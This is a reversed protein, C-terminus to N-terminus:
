SFNEFRGGSGSGRKLRAIRQEYTEQKKDDSSGPVKPVARLHSRVTSITIYRDTDMSHNNQDVPKTVKENQDPGLDEFEPYHYVEIEDISHPNLDRFFKFKRTKMLEYHLAIGRNIDNDAPTAPVGHRNLEEIYGPQSPDCFFNLIGFTQKKQKCVLAIDTITLGTKYFESVSYHRGEPTIARVKLCFPDPNYGWDIGGYYKTGMPLEFPNCQNEAEDFCDYVLGSMQGWEGGYLMAFRRPDMTGLKEARKKPDALFHYPNEWSAAQILETDTRKGALTPKVLEKYVWNRSYPSTTLDVDCGTFDARAQINEWFYLRYKGAEDAWIHRVNTIGVISDPDTETRFFVRGGNNIEFIQEAKNYKGFGDMIKLYPLLTSQTLIKYTPATIIFHDDKKTFLHNKEKMRLSGVLTKGWQTGCAVLTFRKKSFIGQQQKDSHPEFIHADSM